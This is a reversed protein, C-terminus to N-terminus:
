WISTADGANTDWVFRSSEWVFNWVEGWIRCLQMGATYVQVCKLFVTVTVNVSNKLVDSFKLM